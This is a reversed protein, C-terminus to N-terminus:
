AAILNSAAVTSTCSSCSYMTHAQHSCAMICAECGQSITIIDVATLATALYASVKEFNQIYLVEVLTNVALAELIANIAAPRVDASIYQKLRLVRGQAEFDQSNSRVMEVFRRFPAAQWFCQAEPVAIVQDCFHTLGLCVSITESLKQECIMIRQEFWCTLLVHAQRDLVQWVLCEYIATLVLMSHDLCHGHGAHKPDLYM